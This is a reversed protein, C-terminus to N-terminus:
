SHGVLSQRTRTSFPPSSLSLSDFSAWTPKESAQIGLCSCVLGLKKDAVELRTNRNNGLDADGQAAMDMPKLATFHRADQDVM